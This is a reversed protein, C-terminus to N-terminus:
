RVPTVGRVRIGGASERNALKRLREERAYLTKLDARSLSRGNIDYSQGREEIDAIAAQVRELQTTYSEVAL